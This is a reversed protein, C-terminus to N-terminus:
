DLGKTSQLLLRYMVSQDTYYFVVTVQKYQVPRCQVFSFPIKYMMLSQIYLVSYHTMEMTNM